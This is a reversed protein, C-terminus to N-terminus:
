RKGRAEWCAAVLGAKGSAFFDYQFARVLGYARGNGNLLVAAAYGLVHRRVSEPDDTLNKLIAAVQKWDGGALLIRCLEISQAKTDGKVVAGVQDEAKLPMVQELLVLAKRPSGDAVEIIKERVKGSLAFGEKKAVRTLLADMDAAPVPEFKVVTCRSMIAPIIKHPDTTCLCFYAHAPPDELLKLLVNQAEKTAMQFEDLTYWSARSGGLPKRAASLKLERMDDIGRLDAIDKETYCFNAETAGLMSAGIRAATTKGTGPPGIFAFAHPVKAPRAFHGELTKRAAPSGVMGAFTKPRVRQYLGTPEGPNPGNKRKM